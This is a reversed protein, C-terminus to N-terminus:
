TYTAARATAPLLALGLILTAQRFTRLVPATGIM